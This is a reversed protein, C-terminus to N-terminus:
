REASERRVVWVHEAPWRRAWSLPAYDTYTTRAGEPPRLEVLDEVGLGHRRFLRIWAGYALQFEVHGEGEWRGVAFYPAQLTRVVRESRESWCVDRFPTSMCFALRGGPRLLRACEPVSREPDAFSMAGHDSLIADFSRDPLPVREAAAHVLPFDLGARRMGRRAHALQRRSNDLGVPRAGALALAISWQAAGCGLELVDKGGVEGLAGVEEEPIRFTGWAMPAGHLFEGHAAQYDDAREDWYRRNKAADRSIGM